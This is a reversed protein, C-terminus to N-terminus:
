LKEGKADFREWTQMIAKVRKTDDISQEGEELFLDYVKISMIALQTSNEPLEGPAFLKSKNTLFSAAKQVARQEKIDESDALSFKWRQVQQTILAKDKGSIRIGTAAFIRCDYSRCTAPRYEYISCAGKKLMPCHGNEDYGMLVYGKPLGPAPFLLEEPIHALTDKEDPKIHIFQSSRCCANCEGCPVDTESDKKLATRTSILWTSFKGAALEQSEPM